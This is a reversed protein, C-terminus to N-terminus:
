KVKDPLRAMVITGKNTVKNELEVGLRKELMKVYKDIHEPM